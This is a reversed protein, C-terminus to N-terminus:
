TRNKRSIWDDYRILAIRIDRPSTKQTKKIFGHVLLVCDNQVSVYIVRLNDKGLIRIEWFPTGTLKKVHPLISLLGYNEIYSVVRLLKSQQNSSISDLFDSVPNVGKTTTYYIIKTM